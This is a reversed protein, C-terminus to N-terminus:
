SEEYALLQTFESFSDAVHDVEEDDVDREHNWWVVAGSSAGACVLLYLNGAWDNAIPITGAPIVDRVLRFVEDLQFDSTGVGLEFLSRVGWYEPNSSVFCAPEDAARHYRLCNAYESPVQMGIERELAALRDSM